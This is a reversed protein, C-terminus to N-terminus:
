GVPWWLRAVAVGAAAAALGLLVNLAVNGMALLPEGADLHRVTQYGFTSFTTLGGLLGVTLGTHWVGAPKDSPTWVEHMLLGLVFCGVVNVLLTGHAFRAGWAATCAVGVGHRLVAGTAGGLAIALLRALSDNM